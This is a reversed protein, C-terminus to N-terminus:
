VGTKTEDQLNSPERGRSWPSEEHPNKKAAFNIGSESSSEFSALSATIKKM